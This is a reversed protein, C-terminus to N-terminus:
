MIPIYNSRNKNAAGETKMCVDQFSTEDGMLM